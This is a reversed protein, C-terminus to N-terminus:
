RSRSPKSPRGISELWSRLGALHRNAELRAMEPDGAVIAALISQHQAVSLQPQRESRALTMRRSDQMASHLDALLKHLLQNRSANAIAVHFQTDLAALQTLDVDPLQALRRFAEHARQVARLSSRTGHRAAEAAALEDLAGRVNLLELLEERHADLYRQFPGSLQERLPGAVYAGKGHQVTVLGLAELGAIAERVSVRSVGFTECLARESPLLDGQAYDGAEIAQLLQERVQQTPSNRRVPRLRRARPGDGARRLAGDAGAVPDLESTHRLMDYM